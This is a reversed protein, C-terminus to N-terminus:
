DNILNQRNKHKLINQNMEVNKFIMSKNSLSGSFNLKSLRNLRDMSVMDPSNERM